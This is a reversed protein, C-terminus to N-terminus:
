HGCRELNRSSVNERERGGLSPPLSSKGGQRGRARGSYKEREEREDKAREKEDAEVHPTTFSSSCLLDNMETVVLM